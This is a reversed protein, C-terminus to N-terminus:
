QSLAGGCVGWGNWGTILDLGGGLEREGEKKRKEGRLGGREM